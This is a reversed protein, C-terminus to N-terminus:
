SLPHVFSPMPLEMAESPSLLPYELQLCVSISLNSTARLDKCAIFNLLEVEALYGWLQSHNQLRLYLQVIYHSNWEIITKM